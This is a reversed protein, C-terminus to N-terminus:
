GARGTRKRFEKEYASGKIVVQVIPIGPVVYGSSQLALLILTLAGMAQARHPLDPGEKFNRMVVKGGGRGARRGVGWCGAVGAPPARPRTTPVSAAQKVFRELISTKGVRAEGLFM